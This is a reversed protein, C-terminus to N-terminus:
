ENRLAELPHLRLARYGAVAGAAATLAALGFVAAVATGWEWVLLPTRLISSPLLAAFGHGVIAAIAGALAGMVAFELCLGRLMAGRRAGLARLIAVQRGGARQAAAVISALVMACGVLILLSVIRLMSGAKDSLGSALAVFEGRSRVPLEPFREHIARKVEAAHAPPVEVAAFYHLPIGELAAIEEALPPEDSHVAVDAALRERLDASLRREFALSTARVGSMAAVGAAIAIVAALSHAPSARLERWAIRPEAPLHM